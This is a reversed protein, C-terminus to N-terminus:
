ACRLASINKCYKQLSLAISPPIRRYRGREKGADIRRGSVSRCLTIQPLRESQILLNYTRIRGAWGNEEGFARKISVFFFSLQM